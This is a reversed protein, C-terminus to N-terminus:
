EAVGALQELPPILELSDFEIYHREALDNDWHVMAYGISRFASDHVSIIDGRLARPRHTYLHKPFLGSRAAVVILNRVRDGVQFNM